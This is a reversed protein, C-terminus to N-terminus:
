FGLMSLRLKVVDVMCKDCQVYGSQIGNNFTLVTM